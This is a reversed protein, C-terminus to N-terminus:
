ASAERFVKGGARRGVGLRWLKAAVAGRRITVGFDKTMRRAIQTRSLGDAALSRLRAVKADTWRM